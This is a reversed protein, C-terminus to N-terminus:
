RMNLIMNTSTPISRYAKPVYRGIIRRARYRHSSFSSLSTLMEKKIIEIDRRVSEPTDNAFGLIYGAYTWIGAAKWALLM